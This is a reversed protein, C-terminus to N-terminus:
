ARDDPHTPLPFASASWPLALQCQALALLTTCDFVLFCDVVKMDIALALLKALHSPENQPASWHGEVALGREEDRERGSASGVGVRHHAPGLRPHRMALRREAVVAHGPGPFAIPGIELVVLPAAPHHDLLVPPGGDHRTSSTGRAFPAGKSPEHRM